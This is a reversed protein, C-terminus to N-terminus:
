GVVCMDCVDVEEWWFVFRSVGLIADEGRSSVEKLVCLRGEWEYCDEVWFCIGMLVNEECVVLEDDVCVVSVSSVRERKGRKTVSADEDVREDVVDVGEEKEVEEEFCKVCYKLGGMYLMVYEVMVIVCESVLLEDMIMEVAKRAKGFFLKWVTTASSGGVLMEYVKRLVNKMEECMLEVLKLM